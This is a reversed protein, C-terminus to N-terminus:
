IVKLLQLDNFFIPHFLISIPLPHNLFRLLLRRYSYSKLSYFLTLTDILLLHCPCPGLPVLPMLPVLPLSSRPIFSSVPCATDFGKALSWPLQKHQLDRQLRRDTMDVAVVYGGVCRAADLPALRACRTGLVVGLEVEYDVESAGPPM